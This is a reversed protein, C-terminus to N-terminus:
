REIVPSSSHWAGDKKYAHRRAEIKGERSRFPKHNEMDRGEDAERTGRHDPIPRAM